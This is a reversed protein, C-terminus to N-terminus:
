PPGPRRPCGSDPRGSAASPALLSLNIAAQEHDPQLRLACEYAARAGEIDGEAQRAWGLNVWPRAKGPSGAVTAQWLLRESRYDQNRTWTAQACLLAVLALAAPGLRPLRIAALAVVVALAAGPLVLYLHRDNALDFRPMLSNGPALQLWYWGIAFGLWPWRRRSRIAVIISALAALVVAIQVAGWGAPIDLAPDLNTRLGFLSHLVLHAHATTQGLLQAELGRTGLSYHFFRDYGPALAAAAVAIALMVGHWRLSSLAHRLPTGAFWALMLVALPLTMATERVALAAGFLLASAFRWREPQRRADAAAQMWLAALYFTAMLSMSRGSVYSVSETAAPHLAFLLAVAASAWPGPADPALRRLWQGAVAWVLLTNALHLGLNAAHFGFPGPSLAWNLAYALKLLPRIGPMSAWWAALGHVAPNDVVVAYDDFHFPAALTAWYVAVVLGCLGAALGARLLRADNM